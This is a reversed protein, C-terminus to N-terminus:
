FLSKMHAFVSTSSSLADRLFQKVVTPESANKFAIRLISYDDHPHEKHFGCFSLMADGEYHIAYMYYELVKGITYDYNKLLIDYCNEITSTTKQIAVVSNDDVDLAQQIIAMHENLIDCAKKILEKNQYIGITKLMFDFSNQVCIRQGDLLNWNKKEFAIQAEDMGEGKLEKAKKAWINNATVADVTNKYFCTSTQNYTSSEKATSIHFKCTLDIEEGELNTALRPRLRLFEIYYNTVGDKPFIRDRDGKSLYNGTQVDKIQFDETTVYEIIGSTNTKKVELLYNELPITLDTIHIPVLSLRHKIIENNFRTTNKNITCQNENYPFTHFVASPIDSLLTRRLANVVSVNINKVVFKLIDDEERKTTIEPLMMTTAVKTYISIIKM